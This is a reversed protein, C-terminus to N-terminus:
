FVFSIDDLLQSTIVVFLDIDDDDNDGKEEVYKFVM